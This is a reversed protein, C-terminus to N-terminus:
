NFEYNSGDEFTYNDANQFRYNDPSEPTLNFLGYFGVSFSNFSGEFGKPADM